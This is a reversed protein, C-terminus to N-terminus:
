EVLERYCHPKRDALYDANSRALGARSLDIDALLLTEEEGAQVTLKGSPDAVASCGFFALDGERGVRNALAVWLRNEAARSQVYIEQLHQNPTMNGTCVAIWQSGRLALARAAEPFELDYCILLGAPGLGFDLVCFEEGPLFWDTEAHFLHMKRYSGAVQGQATVVFSSDFAHLGDPSLEPYGMIVVIHNRKALDVV